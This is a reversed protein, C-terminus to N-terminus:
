IWLDIDIPVQLFRCNRGVAWERSHGTLSEFAGNAFVLRAGPAHMDAVILPASLTETSETLM